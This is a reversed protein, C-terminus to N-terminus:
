TCIEHLESVDMNYRVEETWFSHELSFQLVENLDEVRGSAVAIHLRVVQKQLDRALEDWWFPAVIAARLLERNEFADIRNHVRMMYQEMTEESVPTELVIAGPRVTSELIPSLPNSQGHYIPASSDTNSSAPVDNVPSSRQEPTSKISTRLASLREAEIVEIAVEHTPSEPAPSPTICSHTNITPKTLRGALRLSQCNAPLLTNDKKSLGNTKKAKPEPRPVSKKPSIALKTMSRTTIQRTRTSALHLNKEKGLRNTTPSNNQSRPSAPGTNDLPVEIKQGDKGWTVRLAIPNAMSRTTMQKTGTCSVRRTVHRTAPDPKKSTPLAPRINNVSFASTESANAVAM